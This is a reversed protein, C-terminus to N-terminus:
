VDTTSGARGTRMHNAMPSKRHRETDRAEGQSGDRGTEEGWSWKQRRADALARTTQGRQGSSLSRHALPGSVTIVSGNGLWWKAGSRWERLESYSAKNRSPWAWSTTIIGTWRPDCGRFGTTSWSNHTIRSGNVGWQQYLRGQLAGFVLFVTYWSQVFSEGHRSGIVHGQCTLPCM